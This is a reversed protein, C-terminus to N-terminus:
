ARNFSETEWLHRAPVTTAGQDRLCSTAPERGKLSLYKQWQIWHFCNPFVGNYRNTDYNNHESWGLVMREDAFIKTRHHSIVYTWIRLPMAVLSLRRSSRCSRRIIFTMEIFIDRLPEYKFLYLCLTCLFQKNIDKVNMWQLNGNGRKSSASFIDPLFWNVNEMFLCWLSMIKRWIQLFFRMNIEVFFM